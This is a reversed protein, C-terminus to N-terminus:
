AAAPLAFSDADFNWDERFWDFPADDTAVEERKELQTTENGRVQAARARLGRIRWDSAFTGLLTLAGLVVRRRGIAVNQRRVVESADREDFNATALRESSLFKM